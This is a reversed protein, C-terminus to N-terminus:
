IKPAASQFARSGLVTHAMPKVLLNSNSSHLTRAPVYPSLLDALNSPEKSNLIKDTLSAIKFYIRHHIPMWHLVNLVNVTRTRTTALVVRVLSNQVRQLKLTNSGSIGFLLSNAYDLRSSVIANAVSKATELNISTRIHRLARIHFYCTKTISKVHAEFTLHSDLTAGLTKITSSIPVVSGAANISTCNVNQLNIVERSESSISHDRFVIYLTLILAFTRRSGTM